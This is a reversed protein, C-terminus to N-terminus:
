RSRQVCEDLLGNVAPAVGIGSVELMKPFISAGSFGPTTNVEITVVETGTYFHDVRAMGRCGLARYIAASREQVLRTVDDPLPAPILEETDTAHYKAQYDFFEHTHRIECVPLARVEGNLRIVGCTLERGQVFAECMVTPDEAFALDLAPKLEAATKVKSIGISSGSQDPKVFCPLGVRDIVRQETGADRSTLLLSDAVRFGLDRLMGTTTYKSFTVAMNLVSGTQYPVGLMDLYGQLKGDEGPAGHIAILAAGFGESGRGRDITLSGRDLPVNTGNPAECSWHKQTLTIYFPDFRQRDIADMMRQASQHSIVSEGTYGGRFVAILPIPM